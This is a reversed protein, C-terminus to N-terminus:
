SVQAALGLEGLLKVVVNAGLSFGSLYMPKKAAGEEQNREKLTDLFYKLDETFGLHYQRVNTNLKGSCGRFNFGEDIELSFFFCHHILLSQSSINTSVIIKNKSVRWM